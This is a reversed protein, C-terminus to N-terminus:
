ISLKDILKNGYLLNVIARTGLIATFMSTAIGIITTIAFGKISGTGFEYLIIATIITTINADIISSFARRYGQYIAQQISREKSLEEKIREYILVNADVAVALTLVIGAIGPMTLIVGPLLSMMGIILIMNAILAITAIIGFKHYRIVMFLVAAILGWLCAKLGQNINQMGLTPGITCEEVIKIPAMLAGARLLLSLNRAEQRNNLGTIRFMNSIHSQITAVNIVEEQKLFLNNDKINDSSNKYEIFLIAMLKNINDKTFNSMIKGGQHDLTINVQPQNYEDTSFTANTIHDGTLLVQKYLLIPTGNRTFKIESNSTIKSHEESQEENVLRFELMATAGIIEKARATDQIGPLEVVISNVGQRQILPEAIGLRNIRNRLININQQIALNSAAHLKNDLLYIEISYKKGKKILAIDRHISMLKALAEDCISSNLFNVKSGYNNIKSISTYPINNKRLEQIFVDIVQKHINNLVTNMDIEILFHVGGRLDLGLKIPLAGIMTLWSPVAPALNLAVVYNHGLTKLLTDHAYLQMNSNSFRALITGNTLSISKSVINKQKLIHIIDILTSESVTVGHTGTIQIAVDEGYLNPLAYIIGLILTLVLIIYKWLPYHNLM